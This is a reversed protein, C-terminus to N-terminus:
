SKLQFFGVGITRRRSQMPAGSRSSSSPRPRDLGEVALRQPGHQELRHRLVGADGHGDAVQEAVQVRLVLQLRAVSSASSRGPTGTDSDCSTAGIQRSYSRPVVVVTSAYRFGSIRGVDAAEVLRQGACPERRM